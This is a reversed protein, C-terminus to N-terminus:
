PFAPDAFPNALAAISLYTLRYSSSATWTAKSTLLPPSHYSLQSLLAYDSLKSLKLTYESPYASIQSFPMLPTWVTIPPSPFSPPPCVSSQSLCLCSIM